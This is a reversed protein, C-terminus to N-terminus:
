YEQEKYLHLRLDTIELEPYRQQITKVLSNKKMQIMQIWGPHDVSVYVVGGRIDEIKSHAAVDTGAIQAWSRFFTHYTDGKLPSYNDLLSKLIDHAKKM